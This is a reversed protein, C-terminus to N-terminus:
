STERTCAKMLTFFLINPSDQVPTLNEELRMFTQSVFQFM